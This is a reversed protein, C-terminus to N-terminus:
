YIIPKRDLFFREAFFLNKLFNCDATIWKAVYVKVHQGLHGVVHSHLRDGSSGVFGGLDSKWKEEGWGGLELGVREKRVSFSM